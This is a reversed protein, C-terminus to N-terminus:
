QRDSSLRHTNSYLTEDYSVDGEKWWKGREEAKMNVIFCDSDNPTSVSVTGYGFARLSRCTIVTVQSGVRPGRIITEPVPKIAM